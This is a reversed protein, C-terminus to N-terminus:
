WSELLYPLWFLFKWNTEKNLASRLTSLFKNQLSVGWYRNQHKSYMKIFLFKGWILVSAARVRVPIQTCKCYSQCFWDVPLIIWTVKLRDVVKNEPQEPSQPGSKEHGKKGCKCGPWEWKGANRVCRYAIWTILSAGQLLSTATDM